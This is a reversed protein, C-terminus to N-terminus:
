DEQKLYLFPSMDISHIHGRLKCFLFHYKAITNLGSDSFIVNRRTKEPCLVVFAKM